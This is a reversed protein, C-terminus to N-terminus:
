FPTCILQVDTIARNQLQQLTQGDRARVHTRVGTVRTGYPCSMDGSAVPASGIYPNHYSPGYRAWTPDSAQTGVLAALDNNSRIDRVMGNAPDVVVNMHSMVQYSNSVPNLVPAQSMDTSVVPNPTQEVVINGSVPDTQLYYMTDIPVLVEPYQLPPTFEAITDPVYRNNCQLQLDSLYHENNNWNGNIDIVSNYRLNFGRAYGDPDIARCDNIYVADTSAPATIGLQVLTADMYPDYADPDAHVSTYPVWWVLLLVFIIFTALVLGATSQSYDLINKGM